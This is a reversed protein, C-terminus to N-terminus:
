GTSSDVHFYLLMHQVQAVHPQTKEATCGIHVNVHATPVNDEEVLCAPSMEHHSTKAQRFDEEFLSDDLNRLLSTTIIM